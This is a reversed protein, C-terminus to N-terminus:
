MPVLTARFAGPEEAAVLALDRAEGGSSVQVTLQADGRAVAAGDEREVRVDVYNAQGSYAPEEGWGLTVRYPGSDHAVHAAAGSACGLMWACVLLWVIPTRM